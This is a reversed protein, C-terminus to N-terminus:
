YIRLQSLVISASPSLVPYQCETIQESVLDLTQGDLREWGVPERSGPMIVSDCRNKQEGGQREGGVISQKSVERDGWGM